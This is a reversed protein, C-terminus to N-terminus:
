PSVLPRGTGPGRPTSTIWYAYGPVGPGHSHDPQVELIRGRAGAVLRLVEDRSVGFMEMRASLDVILRYKFRRWPRIVAGPLWRKLATGTVPAECFAREANVPEPVQFMLVGGPRLVRVLEPVYCRVLPPEIHQLVLRSYVVDFHGTEFLRLHPEPNLMFTCREIGQNLQRAQEIMSPAADVGVVEAFHASLARTIRGVGCGFDLARRRPANPSVRALDVMFCEVDARGTAFFAEADWEPVAGGDATLIAGYANRVGLTDWHREVRKRGILRALGRM